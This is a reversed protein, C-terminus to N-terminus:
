AHFLRSLDRETAIRNTRRRAEDMGIISATWLVCSAINYETKPDYPTRGEARAIEVALKRAVVGRWREKVIGTLITAYIAFTGFQEQYPQLSEGSNYGYQVAAMYVALILLAPASWRLMISGDKKRSFQDYLALVEDQPREPRM